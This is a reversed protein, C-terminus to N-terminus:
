LPQWDPDTDGQGADPAIGKAGSAGVVEVVAFLDFGDLRAPM